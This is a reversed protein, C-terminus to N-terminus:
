RGDVMSRLTASESPSWLAKPGIELLIHGLLYRNEEFLRPYNIEIIQGVANISFSKAGWEVELGKKLGPVIEEKIYSETKSNM